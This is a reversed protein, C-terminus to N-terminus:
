ALTDLYYHVKHMDLFDLISKVHVGWGLNIFQNEEIEMGNKNIKPSFGLPIHRTMSQLAWIRGENDFIPGGSQGRLGPSSTEVWLIEKNDAQRLGGSISRTMMGEYPFRPIPFLNSAYNFANNSFTAQIDYFPFGLKCLSRGVKIKDLAIFKPYEKVFKPDFNEIKGLALDNEPFVFFQTVRHHDAGFWLSHNLIWKPNLVTKKGNLYDNYEQLHAQHISTQQIIHAATIFWGEENIIVFAGLSSSITGDQYRNSIIIPFTYNSASEIATTFM